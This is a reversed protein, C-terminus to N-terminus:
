DGLLKKLAEGAKKAGEGAAGGVEGLSETIAEGIGESAGDLVQELSELTEGIGISAAAQVAGESFSSLVAEAVEGPAAGGKEKGIDKLHIDPLPASLAKGELISASVNVTGGRFILNEIILRPEDGDSSGSAAVQEGGSDDGSGSRATYAEINEQIAAINSGASGFEYTVEPADIVIEKIVVPDDTVTATDITVSISGLTFATPTSFGGPNGVSLGRLAAKGSGLELEVEALSVKTRTVESGYKEVAQQVLSDLSSYLFVAIVVIAVVVIGGAILLGRKM